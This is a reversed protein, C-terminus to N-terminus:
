QKNFDIELLIKSSGFLKQLEESPTNKILEIFEAGSCSLSQAQPTSPTQLNKANQLANQNLAELIEGEDISLSEIDGEIDKLASVFDEDLHERINRPAPLADEAQPAQMPNQLSAQLSTQLSAEMPTPSAFDTANDDNPADSPASSSALSSSAMANAQAIASDLTHPAASETHSPEAHLPDVRHTETSPSEEPESIATEQLLRKIEDIDKPNLIQTPQTSDLSEIEQLDQETQLAQTHEPEEGREHLDDLEFDKLFDDTDVEDLAIKADDKKDFVADFDLLEEEGFTNQSPTDQNHADQPTSETIQASTEAQPAFDQMEQAVFNDLDEFSNIDPLDIFNEDDLTAKLAPIASSEEQLDKQAKLEEPERALNEELNKAPTPSSPELLESDLSQAIAALEASAQTTPIAISPTGLNLSSPSASSQLDQPIKPKIFSLIETPLFPKKIYHNFGKLPQSSKRYILIKEYELPPIGTINPISDDFFALIIKGSQCDVFSTDFNDFVLLPLGLNKVSNEIIKIVM